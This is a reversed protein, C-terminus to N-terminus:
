CSGYTTAASRPPLTTGIRLRRMRESSRMSANASHPPSATLGARLASRLADADMPRLGAVWRAFIPSTEWDFEAVLRHGRQQAITVLTEVFFSPPAEFLSEPM